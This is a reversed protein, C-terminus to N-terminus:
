WIKSALTITIRRQKAIAVATLLWPLRSDKEFQTQERFIALIQPESDFANEENQLM